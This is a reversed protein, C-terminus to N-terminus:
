LHDLLVELDDVRRSLTYEYKSDDPKDSLGCGIHDPVITRYSDRLAEVLGRYYFSWSPNGHLMVVPEGQGEDLYHYNLGDGVKIDRGPHRAVFDSYGDAM